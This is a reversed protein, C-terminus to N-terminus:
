EDPDENRDPGVGPREADSARKDAEEHIDEWTMSYQARHSSFTAGYHTLIDNEDFFVWLRDQRTDENMLSLVIVSFVARKSIVSDYRYASRRGLQIVENPGGLLQVAELATTTGPELQRVLAADLPENTSSRSVFCGPLPLLFALLLATRIM